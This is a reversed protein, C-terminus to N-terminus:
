PLGRKPKHILEDKHAKGYVDCFPLVNSQETKHLHSLATEICVAQFQAATTEAHSNVLDAILEPAAFDLTYTAIDLRQKTTTTGIHIIRDIRGPRTPKGNDDVQGLAADIHHLNNTTVILLVGNLASIGSIQNLICEFSLSKHVTTSERGHFVTDFDELAVVCPTEMTEWEHIFDHDTLTNLCYQYLPIKLTQAVAKSLSSKGTGGPGHLLVGTRWPIGRDQYWTKKDFWRRLDNLLGHIEQPFFLGRLPDSNSRNNLYREPAFRFSTDILRHPEINSANSDPHSEATREGVSGRLEKRKLQASNLDGISGIVQKIYFYDTNSTSSNMLEDSYDLAACTLAYPDSFKRLSVTTILGGTNVIFIGHKGYWISTSSPLDFPVITKYQNDDVRDTLFMINSIGSPAKKYHKRLYQFVKNGVSADFTKQYLFVGTLYRSFGKVYNWGMTVAAIVAALGTANMLTDLAM